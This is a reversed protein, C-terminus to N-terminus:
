NLTECVFCFVGDAFDVRHQLHKYKKDHGSGERTMSVITMHPVYFSVWMGTERNIITMVKRTEGDESGNNWVHRARSNPKVFTDSHYDQYSGETGWQCWAHQVNDEEHGMFKLMSAFLQSKKMKEVTITSALSSTLLGREYWDIFLKDGILKKTEQEQERPHDPASLYAINVMKKKILEKLLGVHGGCVKVQLDNQEGNDFLEPYIKDYPLFEKVISRMEINEFWHPEVKHYGEYECIGCLLVKNGDWLREVFGMAKGGPHCLFGCKKRGMCHFKRPTVKYTGRKKARKHDAAHTQEKTTLPKRYDSYRNDATSKLTNTGFVVKAEKKGGDDRKSWKAEGKNNRKKASQPRNNNDDDDDTTYEDEEDEEDVDEEDVDEEDEDEPTKLSPQTAKQRKRQEKGPPAVSTKVEVVGRKNSNRSSRRPAVEEKGDSKNRSSRRPAVEEKGDGGGRLYLLLEEAEAEDESESESEEEQYGILCPVDM